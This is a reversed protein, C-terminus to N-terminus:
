KKKVLINKVDKGISSFLVNTKVSKIAEAFSSKPNTAVVLDKYMDVKRTSNHVRRPADTPVSQTPAAPAPTEVPQIKQEMLHGPTKIEVVPVSMVSAITRGGLAVVSAKNQVKQADQPTNNDM